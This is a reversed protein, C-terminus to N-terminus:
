SKLETVYVSDYEPFIEWAMDLAEDYTNSVVIESNNVCDEARATVRWRKM